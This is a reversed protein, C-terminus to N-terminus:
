QLYVVASMSPFTFSFKSVSTRLASSSPVSLSLTHVSDLFIHITAPGAINELNEVNPTPIMVWAKMPWIPGDSSAAYAKTDVTNSLNAFPM